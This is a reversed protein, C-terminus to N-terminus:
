RRSGTVVAGLQHPPSPAISARSPASWDGAGVTSGSEPTVRAFSHRTNGNPVVAVTVREGDPQRRDDLRQDSISPPPDRTSPALDGLGPWPWPVAATPMFCVSPRRWIAATRRTALLSAAAWTRSRLHGERGAFACTWRCCVASHQAILRSGCSPLSVMLEDNRGAMDPVPKSQLTIATLATTPM